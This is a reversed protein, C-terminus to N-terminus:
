KPVAGKPPDCLTKALLINCQTYPATIGRQSACRLGHCLEQDFDGVFLAM